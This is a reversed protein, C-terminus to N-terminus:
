PQCGEDTDYEAAWDDARREISCTRRIALRVAEKKVAEAYKKNARGTKGMFFGRWCVVHLAMKVSTEKENDAM